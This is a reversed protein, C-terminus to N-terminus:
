SIKVFLFPRLSGGVSVSGNFITYSRRTYVSLFSVLYCLDRHRGNEVKGVIEILDLNLILIDVGVVPELINDMM